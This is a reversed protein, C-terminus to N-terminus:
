YNVIRKESVGSTLLDLGEAIGIGIVEEVVAFIFDEDEENFTSGPTMLAEDLIEMTKLFDNSRALLWVIFLLQKYRFADDQIKRAMEIAEKFNGEEAQSVILSLGGKIGQSHIDDYLFGYKILTKIDNNEVAINIALELSELIDRPSLRLGQDLRFKDNSLLSFLSYYDKSLRGLLYYHLPLYRLANSDMVQSKLGYGEHRPKKVEYFDIIKKHIRILDRPSYLPRIHDMIRHSSFSFNGKELILFKNLRRRNKMIRFIDTKFTHALDDDSVPHQFLILAGLIDYLLVQDTTEEPEIPGYVTRLFASNYFDDNDLHEEWAAMNMNHTNSPLSLITDATLQGCLISNAILRVTLPKGGRSAWYIKETLSQIKEKQKIKIGAKEIFLTIEERTFPELPCNTFFRICDPKIHLDIGTDQAVGSTELSIIGVVNDPLNEPIIDLTERLYPIQDLSDLIFILKENNKKCFKATDALQERFMVVLDQIRHPIEGAAFDLSGKIYMLQAILSRLIVVPKDLDATKRVFHYVIPLKRNHYIFNCLLATKGHGEKGTLLAYTQNREKIFEDIESLIKERGVFLRSHFDIFEEFHVLPPRRKRKERPAEAQLKRLFTSIPQILNNDLGAIPIEKNTQYDIYTYGSESARHLFLLNGASIGKGGSVDQLYLLPHLSIFQEPGFYLIAKFHYEDLFEEENAFETKQTSITSGKTAYCNFDTGKVPIFVPYDFISYLNFLIHEILEFYGLVIDKSPERLFFRGVAMEKELQLFFLFTDLLSGQVNIFQPLNDTPPFPELLKLFGPVRPALSQEKFGTLILKIILHTGQDSPAKFYDLIARNIEPSSWEKKDFYQIYDSISVAALFKLISASLRAIEFFAIDEDLERRLLLDKYLEGMPFPLNMVLNKRKENTNGAEEMILGTDSDSKAPRM